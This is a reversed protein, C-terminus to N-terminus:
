DHAIAGRRHLADREFQAAFRGCDQEIIGIEVLRNRRREAHCKHVAALGAGRPRTEEHRALLEVRDLAGDHVGHAGEGDAVRGIGLGGDSRHHRLLLVIAHLGVDAFADFFAGFHQDAALAMGFTEFRTVEHLGRYEHVDLVVHRDRPFLNEAGHEADDGIVGLFVRDSDGVVGSITKVGGDKTSVERARSAHGRPQPGAPDHDVAHRVIRLRGPAPEFIGADATFIARYPM